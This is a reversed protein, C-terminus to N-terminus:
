LICFLMWLLVKFLVNVKFLDAMLYFKSNAKLKQTGEEKQQHFLRNKFVSQM